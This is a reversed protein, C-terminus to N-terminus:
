DLRVERNIEFLLDAQSIREDFEIRFRTALNRALAEGFQRLKISTTNPDTAFAWEATSTLQFYIPDHERLFEFNSNTQM